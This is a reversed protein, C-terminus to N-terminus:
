KKNNYLKRIREHLCSCTNSLVDELPYEAVFCESCLIKDGFSWVEDFGRCCRQCKRKQTILAM